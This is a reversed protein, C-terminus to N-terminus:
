DYVNEKTNYHVCNEVVVVVLIVYVRVNNERMRCHFGDGNANIAQKMIM